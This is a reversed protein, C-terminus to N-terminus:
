TKTCLFSCHYILYNSKFINIKSEMKSKKYKPFVNELILYPNNMENDIAETIYTRIDGVESVKAGASSQAKKNKINSKSLNDIEKDEEEMKSANNEFRDVVIVKMNISYANADM